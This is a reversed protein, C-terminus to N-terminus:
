LKRNALYKKYAKAARNSSESVLAEEDDESVTGDIIKQHQALQKIWRPRNDGGSAKYIQERMYRGLPYKKGDIKIMFLDKTFNVGDVGPLGVSINKLRKAIIQAYEAGLGPKRSTLIFTPTEGERNEEINALKKLVYGSVYGAVHRQSKSGFLPDVDVFSNTYWAKHFDSDVVIDRKKKKNYGMKIGFERNSFVLLHYHPRGKKDGYEGVAFYRLKINTNKRLRKLFDQLDTKMLEGNPPLDFDSYTLTLYYTWLNTKMELLLRCTWEQLRTIRCPTCKGCPFSSKMEYGNEIKMIKICKM